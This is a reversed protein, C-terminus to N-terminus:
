IKYELFEKIIEVNDYFIKLNLASIKKNTILKDIDHETLKIKKKLNNYNLDVEKKFIEFVSNYTSNNYKTRYSLLKSVKDTLEIISYKKFPEKILDFHAIYNRIESNESALPVKLKEIVKRIKIENEEDYAFTDKKNKYFVFYNESIENEQCYKIVDLKDLGKAIHYMDREYRSIQIILKWSLEVLYGNIQNLLNFEALGKNYKYISISNYEEEFEKFSLFDTKLKDKFIEEHTRLKIALQEKNSKSIGNTLKNVSSLIKDVREIKEPIDKDFLFSTEMEQLKKELFKKYIVDFNHKSINEFINKKYILYKKNETTEQFYIEKFKNDESLTNMEKVYKDVIEKPHYLYLEDIKKKVEDPIKNIEDILKKIKGIKSKDGGNEKFTNIDLQYKYQTEVKRIVKKELLEEISYDLEKYEEIVEIQKKYKKFFSEFTGEKIEVFEKELINLQNFDINLDKKSKNIDMIVDLLNILNEYNNEKKWVDTSFLRNRVKNIFVNNNMLCCIGIVYTFDNKIEIKKEIGEVIIKSKIKCREKIVKKVDDINKNFNSFDLLKDYGNEPNWLFVLYKEVLEQQFKKISTKNGKSASVQALIYKEKPSYPKEVELLTKMFPSNNDSILKFYLIKNVYIAANFIIDKLEESELALKKNKEFFKSKLKPILKSYSPFYIGNKNNGFKLNNIKEFIKIRDIGPYVIDMNLNRNILEDSIALNEITSKLLKYDQENEQTTEIIFNRGHVIDSRLSVASARFRNFSDNFKFNEIDIFNLNQNGTKKDCILLHSKLALSKPNINIQTNDGFFDAKEINDQTETIENLYLNTSSFLALLELALEENGHLEKFSNTNVELSENHEIKGIYLVHELIYQKVRKFTKNKTEKFKNEEIGFDFFMQKEISKEVRGKIYRYVLKYIEKITDDTIKEMIEKEIEKYHEKYTAFLNTDIKKSAESKIKKALDRIKFTDFVEDFIIELNGDIIKELINKVIIDKKHKGDTNHEKYNEHRDMTIFTKIRSNVAKEKEGDWNFENKLPEIRKVINFSLLEGVIFSVIDEETIEINDYTVYDNLLESFYKRSDSVKKASLLFNLYKIFSGNSHCLEKIEKLSKKIKELTDGNQMKLIREELFDISKRDNYIEKEKVIKECFDYLYLNIDKFKNYLSIKANLEESTLINFNICPFNNNNKFEKELKNYVLNIKKNNKLVISETTSSLKKNAYLQNLNKEINKRTEINQNQQLIEVSFIVDEANREGKNKLKLLINGKNFKEKFNEEFKGDQRYKKLEEIFVKNIITAPEIKKDEKIIYKNENKSYERIIKIKSPRGNRNEEYTKYWKKYGFLKSMVVGKSRRIRSVVNNYCWKKNM